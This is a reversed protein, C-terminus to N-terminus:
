IRPYDEDAFPWDISGDLWQQLLNHIENCRSEVDPAIKQRKYGSGDFGEFILSNKPNFFDIRYTLGNDPDDKWRATFYGHEGISRKSLTFFDKLETRQADLEAIAAKLEFLKDQLQGYRM